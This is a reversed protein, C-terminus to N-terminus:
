MNLLFKRLENFAKLAAKNQISIRDGNLRTKIVKSKDRSAIGIYVLGVPEDEGSPPGAYGTISLAIDVNTKDMLGKAMELATEESVASYRDLTLRSVNLEEMKSMNSYTVIGRDFVESVGPIQTFRSSVLGGTCSEAFAIKYNKEKLIKFVVEEIGEDNYSYISEGIRDKIKAVTEELLKMVESENDGRAVIKIDVLGDGAYTAVTPNDNKEIIDKIITELNSEGIGITKLTVVKIIYDQKILPMVYKDFMHKMERPPGPLLVVTKGDKEIFIGPATGLDNKIPKSGEPIYAQKINNPTMVKNTKNFYSRIDDEISNDLVLELGLAESVVEKTFDDGTPGLGGTFILLDARKLGIDIVEKLQDRNDKLTTHYLVDIGIESLRKTLYQSNTNLTSGLILESGVAIIEAKM